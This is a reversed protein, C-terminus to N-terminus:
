IWLMTELSILDEMWPPHSEQSVRGVEAGFAKQFATGPLRRDWVDLMEPPMQPHM